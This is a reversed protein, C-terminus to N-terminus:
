KSLQWHNEELFYSKELDEVPLLQEDADNALTMLFLAINMVDLIEMSIIRGDEFAVWHEKDTPLANKNALQELSNYLGEARMDIYQTTSPDEGEKWNDVTAMKSSERVYFMKDKNM